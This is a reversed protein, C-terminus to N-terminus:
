DWDDGRNERPPAFIIGPVTRCVHVCSPRHVGAAGGLLYACHLPPLLLRAAAAM